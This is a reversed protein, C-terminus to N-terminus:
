ARDLRSQRTSEPKISFSAGIAGKVIPTLSGPAKQALNKALQNKDHISSSKLVVHNSVNAHSTIQRSQSNSIFLVKSAIKWCLKNSLRFLYSKKFFDPAGSEDYMHVAGTGFTPINILRSIACILFTRCEIRCMLGTQLDARTRIYNVCYDMDYSLVRM